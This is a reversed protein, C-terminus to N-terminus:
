MNFSVMRGTGNLQIKEIHDYYADCWYMTSSSHDLTLGNPWLMNSTVFIRRNSGDMWAKEIRGISDNVEDEEWDTWYMWSNLPDVVIARPHSMNGELLTKRTQSARELRAVSITKRYGDNTWYLNNGIWDVSIGEVNDLEDKLITERSNGDIKQRGILFSTTDAFYIHGLEAHYDIARPNVLDEIPVMHEDSSKINMDLGRIVGPRGKGYFLFLDNKPEAVNNKYTLPLWPWGNVKATFM